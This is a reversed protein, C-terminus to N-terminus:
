YFIGNRYVWCVFSEWMKIVTYNARAFSRIFYMKFLSEQVSHM